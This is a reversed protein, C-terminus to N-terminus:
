APEFLELKATQWKGQDPIYFVFWAGEALGSKYVISGQFVESKHKGAKYKLKILNNM